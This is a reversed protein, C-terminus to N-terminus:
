LGDWRWLSEPGFYEEMMKADEKWFDNDYRAIDAICGRNYKEKSYYRPTTAINPKKKKRLDDLYIGIYKFCLDFDLLTEAFSRESYDGIDLGLGHIKNALAIMKETPKGM